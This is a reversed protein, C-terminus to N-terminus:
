SLPQGLGPRRAALQTFMDARVSSRLQGTLGLKSPADGIELCGGAELWKSYNANNFCDSGCVLYITTLGNPIMRAGFSRVVCDCM